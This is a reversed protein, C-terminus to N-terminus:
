LALLVLTLTTAAVFVALNISALPKLFDGFLGGIASIGGARIIAKGLHHRPVSHEPPNAEKM